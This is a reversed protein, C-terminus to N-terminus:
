SYGGLTRSSLLRVLFLAGAALAALAFVAQAPASAVVLLAGRGGLLVVVVAWGAAVAARTVQASWWTLLVLGTGTLALSPLLWVVPEVLGPVLLAGAGTVPLAVGIAATTRLLALRLKSAPLTGALERLPDTSDYAAVVALVPVLPAVLVQVLDRDAGPLLGGALAYLLAGAVSLLWPRQLGSSASLVVADADPLGLRVLARVALSRRPAAIERAVGQWVQQLGARDVQRAADAQCTPCDVLHTEVSFQAASDLAGEAYRRLLDPGAHWTAATM